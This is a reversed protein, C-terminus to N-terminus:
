GGIAKQCLNIRFGAEIVGRRVAEGGASGLALNFAIPSM